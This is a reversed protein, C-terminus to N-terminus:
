SPAPTPTSSGCRPSRTWRSSRRAPGGTTRGPGARWKWILKAQGHDDITQLVYDAPRGYSHTAYMCNFDVKTEDGAATLNATAIIGTQRQPGFAVLVSSGRGPHAPALAGHVLFGGIGGVILAAVVAAVLLLRMRAGLRRPPTLDRISDPVPEAGPGSGHDSLAIAEAAPLQALLGPMAALEGVASRCDPCGALHDEYEHRQQVTLAGLVYAADWDGYPDSQSM